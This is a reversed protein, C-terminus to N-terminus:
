KVSTLPTLIFLLSGDVAPGRVDPLTPDRYIRSLYGLALEGTLRQALAFSVGARSATGDSDRMLGSRDVALDHTRTDFDFAMFPTLPGDLAYAARLEGGVQNFNRDANSAASGDTLQSEQWTTRDIMGKLALDLPGFRQGLGLTGGITTFIPLKAIDATLNPSGPYDTGVVSRGELDLRSDRTVDIRGDVTANLTPRDALAIAPYDNYTGRIVATLQHRTWDSQLQLEPAVILLASGRGGPVRAPNSDYGSFVEIAPRLLFAGLRVGLADLPDEETTPKRRPPVGPNPPTGPPAPPAGLPSAPEALSAPSPQPLAPASAQSGAGAAQQPDATAAPPTLDPGADRGGGADLSGRLADLPHRSDAQSLAPAAIAISLLWGLAIPKVIRTGRHRGGLPTAAAIRARSPPLDPLDSM